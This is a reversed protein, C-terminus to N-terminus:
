WEVGPDTLGNQGRRRAKGAPRYSLCTLGFPVLILMIEVIYGWRVYFTGATGLPLVGALVRRRFVETSATIRGYPDVLMSVGTNACRALAVRGEACRMVAM